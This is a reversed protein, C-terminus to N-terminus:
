RLTSLRHDPDTGVVIAKLDPARPEPPPSEEVVLDTVEDSVVESPRVDEHVAVPDGRLWCWFRSMWNSM